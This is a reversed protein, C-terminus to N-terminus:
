AHTKLDDLCQVLCADDWRYTGGIDLLPLSLMPQSPVVVCWQSSMQMQLRKGHEDLVVHWECRVRNGACVAFGQLRVPLPEAISPLSVNADAYVCDFLPPRAPVRAPMRRLM